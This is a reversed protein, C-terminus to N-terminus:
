LFKLILTRFLPLNPILVGSIINALVLDYRAAELTTLDAHEIIVVDNVSNLQTNELANGVSFADNDFGYVRRAGLKAAAISLIGSGCGADMVSLGEPNLRELADLCLYTTAHSGTGFAMKPDIIIEIRDNRSSYTIWSPRIILRSGVEIAELGTRWAKEWDENPIEKISLVKGPTKM